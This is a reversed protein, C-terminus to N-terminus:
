PQEEEMWERVAAEIVASRSRGTERAERDVAAALDPDLTISLKRKAARGMPPRGTPKPTTM